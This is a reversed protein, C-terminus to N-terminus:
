KLVVLNATFRVVRLDGDGNLLAPRLDDDGSLLAPRLDGDGEPLLVLLLVM